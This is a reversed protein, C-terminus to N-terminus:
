KATRADANTPRLAVAGNAATEMAFPKPIFSIVNLLILGFEFRNQAQQSLRHLPAQRGKHSLWHRPTSAM